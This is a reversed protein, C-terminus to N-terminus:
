DPCIVGEVRVAGELDKYQPAHYDNRVLIRGALSWGVRSTWFKNEDHPGM